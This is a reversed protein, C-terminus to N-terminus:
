QDASDGALKRELEEEAKRIADATVSSSTPSGYEQEYLGRAEEAFQADNMLAELSRRRIERYDVLPVGRLQAPEMPEPSDFWKYETNVRMMDDIMTNLQKYFDPADQGAQREERLERAGELMKSYRGRVAEPFRDASYVSDVPVNRGALRAEAERIKLEQLPDPPAFGMLSSIAKSREAEPIVGNAILADVQATVAETGVMHELYKATADDGPSEGLMRIERATEVLRGMVDLRARLALNRARSQMEMVAYPNRALKTKFIHRKLGSMGSLDPMWQDPMKDTERLLAVLRYFEGQLQEATREERAERKAAGGLLMSTVSDPGSALSALDMEGAPTEVGKPTMVNHFPTAEERKRARERAALMSVIVPSIPM